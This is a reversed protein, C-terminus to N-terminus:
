AQAAQLANQVALLFAMSSDTAGSVVDVQLSQASLVEGPLPAVDGCPYHTTCGTVVISTVKGSKMTIAVSVSGHRSWGTGAFVGNKFPSPAAAAAQGQSSQSAQSSASSSQSSGQSSSTQAQATTAAAQAPPPAAPQTKAAAAAAPNAPTTTAASQSRSRRGEGGSDDGRAAASPASSAVAPAAPATAQTPAAAAASASPTGTASSTSSATAGPLATGAAVTSGSPPAGAQWQDAAAQTRAYGAVYVAFIAAGSLAMLKKSPRRPGTGGSQTGM